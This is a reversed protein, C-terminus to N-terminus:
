FKKASHNTIDFEFRQKPNTEGYINFTVTPEEGIAQVQHITQPTFSVIDGPSLNIEGVKEIKNPFDSNSSRRWFTNKEQGKLIAVVGWTGHNHINSNTGQAFTVTQVTLPFGLENYLLLVSIGTKLDPQLFQSQVWYSNIILRRVLMRIEPLRTSQDEVNNLVDELETLFRYLRYNDRLLDWTRASKCIQYQGNEAIFLDRGQM